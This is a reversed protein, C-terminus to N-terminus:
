KFPDLYKEQMLSEVDTLTKLFAVLAAKEETSFNMNKPQGNIDKLNEDLNSHAKINSSYHEIVDELTEFRGDHMYPFTLEVNRLMPVKFVGMDSQRNTLGGVGKDTYVMDLGNNAVSKVTTANKAGHCSACNENFLTKGLNEQVTFNSFAFDTSHNGDLGRDFKSDFSAISNVFVALAELINDKHPTANNGFAKKFLIDYYDLNRVRQTLLGFDMGMEIPNQITEESQEEVSLARDDWFFGANQNFSSSGGYSSEFNVVAGLAMSNRPTIEGDFGESGARGDAFAKSAEHCSACSTTQNASLNTDYFLVRGLTAKDNNVQTAFSNGGLNSPIKLSYDLPDQPLDLVATITQYENDTYHKIQSDVNDKVCAFLTLMMLASPLIFKMKM